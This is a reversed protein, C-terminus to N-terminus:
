MLQRGSGGDEIGIEKVVNPTMKISSRTRLVMSIVKEADALKSLLSPFHRIVDVAAEASWFLTDSEVTNWGLQEKRQALLWAVGSGNPTVSLAESGRNAHEL